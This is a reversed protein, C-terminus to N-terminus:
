TPEAPCISGGTLHYYGDGQHYTVDLVARISFYHDCAPCVFMWSNPPTCNPLMPAWAAGDLSYQWTIPIDVGHTPGTRGWMDEVFPLYDLNGGTVPTTIIYQGNNSSCTGNFQVYIDNYNGARHINVETNDWTFMAEMEIWLEIDMGPWNTLQVLQPAYPNGQTLGAKNWGLQQAGQLPDYILWGSAWPVSYVEWDTPDHGWGPLYGSVGTGPPVPATAFAVTAAFVVLLAIAYKM